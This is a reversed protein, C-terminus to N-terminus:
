ARWLHGQGTYHTAAALVRPHPSPPNLPLTSALNSPGAAARWSIGTGHPLPPAPQFIIQHMGSAFRLEHTGSDSTRRTSSAHMRRGARVAPAVARYPDAGSAQIPELLWFSASDVLQVAWREEPRLEAKGKGSGGRDGEGDWSWRITIAEGRRRRSARERDGGNDISAAVEGTHRRQRMGQTRRRVVPTTPSPLPPLTMNLAFCKSSMYIIGGIFVISMRKCTRIRSEAILLIASWELFIIASWEWVMFKTAIYSIHFCRYQKLFNRSMVDCELNFM